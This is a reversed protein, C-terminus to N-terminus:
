VAITESVVGNIVETIEAITLKTGSVRPSGGVLNGGGWIDGTTLGEAQNLAELCRAVNFPIFISQRGIVCAHRGDPRERPAFFAKIGDAFMGTRANMGIEQVMMWGKGGGIKNYRTDLELSGGHGSLFAQIRQEVDTVVGEYEDARRRDLAGTVRFRRYPEFIWNLEQYSPMDPPFPYAGATSDLMDEMFVLRNLLPNVTHRALHNHKALFWTLCVDEDCDNAFIIAEPNGHENKFLEFLGQRISMMMQACTARTELRSVREHHNLNLHRGVEDYQPADAVYGDIAISHRPKATCFDVWSMPVTNPEMSLTFSM